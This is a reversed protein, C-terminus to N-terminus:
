INFFYEPISVVYKLNFLWRTLMKVPLSLMSLFLMVTVYYRAPGLKEYYKTLGKKALVVPLVAVYTVTLIIGFIERPLWHDPLAMGLAQVWILESLQM